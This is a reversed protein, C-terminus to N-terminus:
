HGVNRSVEATAAARRVERGVRKGCVIQKSESRKRGRQAESESVRRTKQAAQREGKQRSEPRCQVGGM